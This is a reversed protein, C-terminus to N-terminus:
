ASSFDWPNDPGVPPALVVPGQCGQCRAEKSTDEARVMLGRGCGPCVVRYKKGVGLVEMELKASANVPPTATRPEYFTDAARQSLRLYAIWIAAYVVSRILQFTIPFSDGGAIVGASSYFRWDIQKNQEGVGLVDFMRDSAVLIAVSYGLTVAVNALLAATVWLPASQDRGFFSLAAFLAMPLLVLDGALSYQLVTTVDWPLARPSVFLADVLIYADYLLMFPSTALGIALFILWGGIQRKRVEGPYRYATM